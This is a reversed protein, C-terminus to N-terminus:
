EAAEAEDMERIKEIDEPKLEGDEAATRVAEMDAILGPSDLRTWPAFEVSGDPKLIVEYEVKPQLVENNAGMTLSNAYLNPLPTIQQVDSAEKHLPAYNYLSGNDTLSVYFRLPIAVTDPDPTWAATLADQFEETYRTVETAPIPQPPPSQVGALCIENFEWPLQSLGEVVGSTDICDSLRHAGSDMLWHYEGLTEPRSKTQCDHWFGVAQDILGMREKTVAMVCYAFGTGLQRASISEDLQIAQRLHETAEEYREQTLLAWGLNRHLQYLDTQNQRLRELQGPDANDPTVGKLEDNQISYARQLGMRLYTTALILDPEGTVSDPKLIYIRGANNFGRPLGAQIVEEYQELAPDFQGLTEYVRGLTLHADALDANLALAEQLVEAAKNLDGNTYLEEGREYFYKPLFSYLGNVVLFLSFSAAFTIESYFEPPINYNRLLGQVKKQGETTLAGGGLLALGAGQAITGLSAQWSLGGVSMAQLITVSFSATAALAAATLGNWFWDLKDWAGIQVPPEFRWWWASEPPNISAKWEELSGSKALDPGLSRLRADLELLKVTLASSQDCEDISNQLQDRALLVELVQEASPKTALSSSRKRTNEIEEIATQYRKFNRMLEVGAAGNVEYVEDNSDLHLAEAIEAVEAMQTSNLGSAVVQTQPSSDDSEPSLTATATSTAPSPTAPLDSGNAPRDTLQEETQEEPQEELLPSESEVSGQTNSDSSSNSTLNVM